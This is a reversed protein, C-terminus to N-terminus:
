TSLQLEPTLLLFIVCFTLVATILTVTERLNTWRNALGIGIAGILPLVFAVLISNEPTIM